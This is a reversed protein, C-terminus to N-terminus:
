KERAKKNSKIVSATDKDGIDISAFSLLVSLITALTSVSLAHLWDVDEMAVAMGLSAVMTEAFTKIARELLDKFFPEM